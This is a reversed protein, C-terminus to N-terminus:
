TLLSCTCCRKQPPTQGIIVDDEEEEKKRAAANLQSAPPPMSRMFSQVLALTASVKRRVELLYSQQKREERFFEQLCGTLPLAAHPRGTQLLHRVVHRMWSPEFLEFFSVLQEEEEASQTVQLLVELQEPAQWLKCKRALTMVCGLLQDLRSPHGHWRVLGVADIVRCNALLVDLQLTMQEAASAGHLRDLCWLALPHQCQLLLCLATARLAGLLPRLEASSQQHSQLLCEVQEEHNGHDLHWIDQVLNQVDTSLDFASPFCKLKKKTTSQQPLNHRIHAARRLLHRCAANLARSWM